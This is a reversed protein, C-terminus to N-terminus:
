CIAFFPSSKIKLCRIFSRTLSRVLLYTFICVEKKILNLDDLGQRVKDLSYDITFLLFQAIYSKTSVEGTALMRKYEMRVIHLFITRIYAMLDQRANVDSRISSRVNIIDRIITSERYKTSKTESIRDYSLNEKFITCHEEVDKICEAYM